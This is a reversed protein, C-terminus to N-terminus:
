RAAQKPHSQRVAQKPHSERGATEEGDEDAVRDVAPVAWATRWSGASGGGAGRGTAGGGGGRGSIIFSM